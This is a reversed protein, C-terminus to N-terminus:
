RNEFADAIHVLGCLDRRPQTEAALNQRGRRGLVGVAYPNNYAEGVMRILFLRRLWVTNMAASRLVVQWSLVDAGFGLAYVTIIAVAGPWGVRSIQSGLTHLGVEGLVAGLLLLGLGLLGANAYKM